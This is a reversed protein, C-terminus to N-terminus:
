VRACSHLMGLDTSGSTESVFVTIAGIWKIILQDSKNENRRERGKQRNKGGGYLKTGVKLLSESCM